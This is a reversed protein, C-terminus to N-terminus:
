RPRSALTLFFVTANPRRSDATYSYQLHTGVNPDHNSLTLISHFASAICCHAIPHSRRTAAVIRCGISTPELRM